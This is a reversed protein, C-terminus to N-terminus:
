FTIGYKWIIRNIRSTFRKKKKKLVCHALHAQLTLCLLHVARTSFILNDKLLSQEMLHACFFFFLFALRVCRGCDAAVIAKSVVCPCKTKSQWSEYEIWLSSHASLSLFFSFSFLVFSTFSVKTHESLSRLSRQPLNWHSNPRSKESLFCCLHKGVSSLAIHRSQEKM